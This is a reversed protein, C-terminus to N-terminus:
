DSAGFAREVGGSRFRLGEPQLGAPSIRGLPIVIVGAVGHVVGTRDPGAMLRTPRRAYPCSHGTM